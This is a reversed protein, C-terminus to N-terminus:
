LLNGYSFVLLGLNTGTTGFHVTVYPVEFVMDRIKVKSNKQVKMELTSYNPMVSDPKQIIEVESNLYGKNVFHDTIIKQTRSLMNSTVEMGRILKVKDTLDDAETKSVGSFSFSSLRPQEQLYIDLFVKDEVFKTATIQVDSFLKQDWM